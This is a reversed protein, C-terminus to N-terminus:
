LEDTSGSGAARAAVAAAVRAAEAAAADVVEQADSFFLRAVVYRCHGCTISPPLSTLTLVLFTRCRSLLLLLRALLGGPVGLFDCVYLAFLAGVYVTLVHISLGKEEEFPTDAHTTGASVQLMGSGNLAFTVPVLGSGGHARRM